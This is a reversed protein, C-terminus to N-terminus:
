SISQFPQKVYARNLKKIYFGHVEMQSHAKVSTSFFFAKNHKFFVLVFFESTYILVTFGLATM